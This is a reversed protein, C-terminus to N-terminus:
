HSLRINSAIGGDDGIWLSVTMPSAPPTIGSGEVAITCGTTTPKTNAELTVGKIKGEFTYAGNGSARFKGAPITIANDGISFSVDEASPKIGNSGSSLKFVASLEFTNNVNIQVKPAFAAFPIILSAILQQITDAMTPGFTIAQRTDGSKTNPDFSSWSKTLLNLGNADLGLASREQQVATDLGNAAIGLEFNTAQDVSVTFDPFGSRSYTTLLRSSQVLLLEFDFAELQNYRNLAAIQQQEWYTSGAAEAGEARNV